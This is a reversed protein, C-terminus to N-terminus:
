PDKRRAFGIAASHRSRSARTLACPDSKLRAEFRFGQGIEDAVGAVPGLPNLGMKDGTADLPALRDMEENEARGADPFGFDGLVGLANEPGLGAVVVPEVARLQFDLLERIDGAGDPL